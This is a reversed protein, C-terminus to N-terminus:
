WFLNMDTSKVASAYCSRAGLQDGRMTGTGHLTPFLPTISQNLLNDLVQFTNFAEAFMISVLRSTDVLTHGVDFNSIDVKTMKSTCGHEASFVQYAYFSRVYHKLTNNSTGALTPGSSITSITNIQRQHPNPPNPANHVYKDLKGEHIFSEINNRLAISSKTDHANFSHFQYFVSTNPM